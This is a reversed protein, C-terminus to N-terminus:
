GNLRQKIATIYSADSGCCGGVYQVFDLAPAVDQAFVEASYESVENGNEDKVPMGANPKFMLPLDTKERFEQIIPLALDPGLSCNMGVVDIGLPELEELIDEVSNGFMTRGMKEFSMSCFVPVDYQKAVEAAIVMMNLDMFTELVILDPEEEMGAGIQEKFIAAAEDEELDGLPELMESLPGIDLAVKTSTGAAAEKALRVGAKVVSAVDFETGEMNGANASFTNTFIIQAGAEIYERHMEVVVQPNTINFQWVPAKSNAKHWLVTGSAGDLLTVQNNAM